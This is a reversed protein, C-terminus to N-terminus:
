LGARVCLPPTIPTWVGRKPDTKQSNKKKKPPPPNSAQKDSLDTMYLSVGVRHRSFQYFKKKLFFFTASGGEGVKEPSAFYCPM